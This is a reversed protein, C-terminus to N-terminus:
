KLLREVEKMFEIEALVPMLPKLKGKMTLPPYVANYSAVAPLFQMVESTALQQDIEFILDFDANKRIPNKLFKEFIVGDFRNKLENICRLTAEEVIYDFVPKIIDGIFAEHADHLLFHAQLDLSYGNEGLWRAGEVSHQAVSYFSTCRGAYRCIKSLASAIDSIHIHAPYPKDLSIPEGYGSYLLQNVRSM